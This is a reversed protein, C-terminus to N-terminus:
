NMIHVPRDLPQLSATSPIVHLVITVLPLHLPHRSNRTPTVRRSARFPLPVGLAGAPLDELDRDALERAVAVRSRPDVLDGGPGAGGLPHDVVVEAALLLEVDGGELLRVRGRPRGLLHVDVMQVRHRRHAGEGLEGEIVLLRVGVEDAEDRDLVDVVALEDGLRGRDGGEVARDDRHDRADELAAVGAAGELPPGLGDVDVQHDAREAEEPHGVPVAEARDEADVQEVGGPALVVALHGPVHDDAIEGCRGVWGSRYCRRMVANSRAAAPPSITATSTPKMPAPLVVTPCMTASRSPWGKTSLSTSISCRWPRLMRSM